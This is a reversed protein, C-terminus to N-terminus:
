AQGRRGWEDFAWFIAFALAALLLAAGGAAEIRHASLLGYMYLPLTPENPASFLAIVGLDGMSLAAAVGLAFGLPERLRPAWILRLRAWSGMGLSAALRGYDAVAVRFPPLLLRLAFPLAMMANVLATLALAVQVPSVLPRLLIFLAVGTVFPSLALTILGLAEAGKSAIRWRAEAAVILAALSLALAICLAGSTLAVAVSRTAAAWVGGGMQALGPLGHWLAAAMPGGLFLIAAIIAAADFARAGGGRGDFREVSGDMGAGFGMRTAFGTAFVALGICLAFQLGALLAARGLDFDFRMAQYIALELTTARPGGGLSLAVAFSTACILFILAFAGPAVARLMPWELLRWLARGEVGLQAALRWREAPIEAYGQLILRVALPMNFFVHAILVGAMGYVNLREMGFAMLIQSVLGSRGWIAVVGLIAVVVPLLFPAGMLRALMDRGWFRRRALARAVPIAFLISFAASLFAQMATFRLARWDATTLGGPAEAYLAVIAVAGLTLFLALAFAGGGAIWVFPAPRFPTM